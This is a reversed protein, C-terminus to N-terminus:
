ARTKKAALAETLEKHQPDDNPVFRLGLVSSHDGKYEKPVYINGVFAEDVIEFRHFRKSDGTHVVTIEKNTM